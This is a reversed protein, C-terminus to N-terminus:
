TFFFGHCKDRNIRGIISIIHTSNSRSTTNHAQQHTSTSTGNDHISKCAM